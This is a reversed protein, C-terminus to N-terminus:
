AGSFSEMRFIDRKMVQNIRSSILRIVKAMDGASTFRDDREKALARDIIQECVKPLKANFERVPPHKVQTIQYLLGSLNKGQFPLEGTLLQFFLVGLSFIDSKQDIKQGMIQEPSMYNPTGLIVGTKTRSSSIAKAIGFDTVKVGGNDMLMINAPKIDRHIVDAKHAYELADAVRAVVQLVKRFPLLNKRKIFKALDKGELNEMVIYTLDEDEGVDYITVISPHALQGAIEAERLFRNKIDKIADEEFEDSFRITKIALLRNIKPDLAKYVLGMSGSGLVELLEYRGVRTRKEPSSEEVISARRLKGHSGITSSKSSEMLRPIRQDLDGFGGKGNIYEYISLAKNIMRKREYELGLQYIIKKTELDMPLKQFKEFALDLLGQSQFSLGLLRNIEISEQTERAAIVWRSVSVVLYVTILCSAIYVTKFWTGTTLYLLMGSTVTLLMLGVLWGLRRLWGFRPFLFVALLGLCLLVLAEIYVMYPPRFIFQRNIMNDLIRAIFENESIKTSFPTSIQPSGSVNMGILVIKNKLLPSMQKTLLIDSFSYRPINEQHEHFRVLMEGKFLPITRDKLRIRNKNVLVQRPEQNLYAIAVRFPFSPLLFSRYPTLIPHSGSAMMGGSITKGNGLGLVNKALERFPLSISNSGASRNLFISSKGQMIFNRSLVIDEERNLKEEGQGSKEYVPLIVNGSLLVSEVLKKDNDLREELTALNEMIWQTINESEKGFGFADFKDRFARVENLGQKQQESTFPINVGILEVGNEHLRNIMTAIINRPWPWPGVEKLSKKDIEILVINHSGGKDSFDLRMSNDLLSKEMRELSSPGYFSLIILIFVALLGLLRQLNFNLKAM